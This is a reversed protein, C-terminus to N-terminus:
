TMFQRRGSLCQSRPNSDWELCPHWHAKIRNTNYQACTAAKRRASGRGHLGVSQTFLNLFQFAALTRCLDTSGYISLYITYSKLKIVITQSFPHKQPNIPLPTVSFKESLLLSTSPDRIGTNWALSDHLAVVQFGCHNYNVVPLSRFYTVVRETTISSFM